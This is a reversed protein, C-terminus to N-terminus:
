QTGRQKEQGPFVTQSLLPLQVVILGGGEPHNAASIRGGHQEVIRQAISMGLGTGGRRRSFFPEFVKPLDEARFGPGSDKIAYSVWDHGDLYESTIDISVEGGPPAHQIANELLNQFVQVLRQRQMQMLGADQPGTVLLRVGQGEAVPACARLAQTFAEEPADPVLDLAPPKGYELLEQMLFRLRQVEARLVTIYRAYEQRVTVRAELADLTSSIAFLPNRVEHAVGAVLSGMAAMIESRHLSAQLFAREREMRERGAIEQRLTEVTEWLRAESEQLLGRSVTTAQLTAVMADFYRALEGFEDHSLRGVRYDLNGQSVAQTGRRLREVPLTIARSLLLVVGIVAGILLLMLWSVTRTIHVMAQEARQGPTALDTRTQTQIKDDLLADIESRLQVFQRIHTQLQEEVALLQHTAGIARTFAGELLNIWTHEQPTLNQSQVQALTQNIAQIKQLFVQKYAPKQNNRYRLLWFGVAIIANELEYLSRLATHQALEQPNAQDQPSEHLLADIKEFADSFNALLVERHDRVHMIHQGTDKFAQYLSAISEGLLREKETQILQNYRAYFEEFDRTDKDVLARATQQGEELYRLVNLGIGKVNIEMEYAAASIPENIDIVDRMAQEFIKLGHYIVVLSLTGLLSISALSLAIKKRVTM